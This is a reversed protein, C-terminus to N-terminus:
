EGGEPGDEGGEQDEGQGDVGEEPPPNDILKRLEVCRNWQAERTLSDFRDDRWDLVREVGKSRAEGKLGLHKTRITDDFLEVNGKFFELAQEYTEPKKDWLAKNAKDMERAKDRWTKALQAPANPPLKAKPDAALVAEAIDDWAAAKVNLIDRLVRGKARTEAMRVLAQKIEGQTSAPSADGYGTWYSGDPMTVVCAVIALEHNKPTPAQVLETVISVVGVQHAADLLGGWLVYPKGGRDIIFNQDIVPVVKAATEEMGCERGVGKRAQAHETIKIRGARPRM